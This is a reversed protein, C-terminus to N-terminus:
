ASDENRTPAPMWSRPKEAPPKPEAETRRPKSAPALELRADHTRMAALAGREHLRRESGHALRSAEHERAADVIQARELGALRGRQAALTHEPEVEAHTHRDERGIGAGQAVADDERGAQAGAELAREVYLDHAELAVGQEDVDADVARAHALRLDGDGVAPADHAEDLLRDRERALDDIEALEGVVGEGLLEVLLEAEDVGRELRRLARAAEADRAHAEIQRLGRGARGDLLRDGLRQAGVHTERLREVVAALGADLELELERARSNGGSGVRADIEEAHAEEALLGRGLARDDDLGRASRLRDEEVRQVALRAPEEGRVAVGADAQAAQEEIRLARAFRLTFGVEEHLDDFAVVVHLAVLQEIVEVAHDGLDGAGIREGRDFHRAVLELAVDLALARVLRRGHAARRQEGIRLDDLSRSWPSV